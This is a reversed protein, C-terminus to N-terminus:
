TANRWTLHVTFTAESTGKVFVLGSEGGVKLGLEVTVEDPGPALSRLGDLMVHLAPLVSRLSSALSFPANAMDPRGAVLEVEGSVDREDVEVEFYAGTEDVPVRLLFSM